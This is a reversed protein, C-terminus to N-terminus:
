PRREARLALAPHIPWPELMEIGVVCGNHDVDINLGDAAQITRAVGAKPIGGVLYVYVSRTSEEYTVRQQTTESM